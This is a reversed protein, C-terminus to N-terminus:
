TNLSPDMVPTPPLADGQTSQTSISRLGGLDATWPSFRDSGEPPWHRHQAEGSKKELLPSLFPSEQHFASGPQGDGPDGDM